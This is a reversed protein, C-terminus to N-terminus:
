LSAIVTGTVSMMVAETDLNERETYRWDPPDSGHKAVISHGKITMGGVVAFEYLSLIVQVRQTGVTAPFGQGRFIHFDVHTTALVVITSIFAALWIAALLYGSFIATSFYSPNDPVRKRHAILLVGIHYIITYVSACPNLWLSLYGLDLMSIILTLTAGFLSACTFLLISRPLPLPAASPDKAPSISAVINPLKM